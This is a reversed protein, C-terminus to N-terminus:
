CFQQRAVFPGFGFRLGDCWVAACDLVGFPGFSVATELIHRSQRLIIGYVKTQVHKYQYM